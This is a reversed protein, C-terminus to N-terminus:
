ILIFCRLLKDKIWFLIIHAGGDQCGIDTWRQMTTFEELLM